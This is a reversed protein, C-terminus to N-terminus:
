IVQFVMYILDVCSEIHASSTYPPLKINLELSNEDGFTKSIAVNSTTKSILQSAPSGKSIVELKFNDSILSFLAM